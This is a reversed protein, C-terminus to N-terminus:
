EVVEAAYPDCLKCADLGDDPTVSRLSPKGAVIACSERHAMSGRETAYLPVSAAVTAAVSATDRHGNSAAGNASRAVAEELRGIADLVARSQSRTEKVLETIWHTFYLLAGLFVLGLGLLGGSILYPIQEFLNPTRAAGYWGLLVALLGLPALVGGVIMLARENLNVPGGGQKLTRVGERLRALRGQDDGQDVTVSTM